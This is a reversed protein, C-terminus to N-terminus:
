MGLSGASQQAMDMAVAAQPLLSIGGHLIADQALYAAIGAFYGVAAGISVKKAYWLFDVKELGMLAVGSASGIVLISGGTGACLAILQWLRDDTGYDALDYMGMTAAVLPVNDILASAIGIVTAIIDLSPLNDSLFVALEKLLGSKDLVGISMLIGLFFLIGSTDLRALAAPVQLGEGEKEDGMHMVDTLTWMAGLGTLMALYPPLGTLEAFVPVSLLSAIGSWFVLKGRPALPTEDGISSGELSGDEEIQQVLFALSGILCVVSPIFLELVTPVTSLQDNIWLMTTTVDGIPTWVGGANAAVVVMAGFLKRDEEVPVLKRLLSCMVITVTLNNLIASLFFTLIGITWFLQKKSTTKIQSTVVKFGEHLDVVEVITSAALLFFCIDSVEALQEGLQQVVEASASGDSNFYDAYTVWLGTSMLLAVAAKNFEFVEEFIIGIYGLVFIGIMAASANDHLWQSQSFFAALSVAGLISAGLGIVDRRATEENNANDNAESKLEAYMQEVPTLGPYKQALTTMSLREDKHILSMVDQMCIVGEIMSEDLLKKDSSVKDAVILHRIGSAKMASIAVNATDEPSISMLDATPTVFDKVKSVLFTAAQEEDQAQEARATSFKIFDAETFLGVIKGTEDDFVLAVDSCGQEGDSIVQIVSMIDETSSARYYGPGSKQSLIRKAPATFGYGEPTIMTEKKLPVLGQPNFEETAGGVYLRQTKFLRAANSPVFQRNRSSILLPTITNPRTTTFASSVAASSLAAVLALELSLRM